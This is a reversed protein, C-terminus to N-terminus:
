YKEIVRLVKKYFNRIITNIREKGYGYIERIEKVRKGQLVRAIVIEEEEKSIKLKERVDRKLLFYQKAVNSLIDLNPDIILQKNIFAKLREFDVKDIVINEKIEQGLSELMLRVISEELDRYLYPLLELFKVKFKMRIFDVIKKCRESLPKLVIVSYEGTTPNKTPSIHIPIFGNKLWFKLLDYTVGFGSGIWDYKKEKLIKSLENLAISGLGKGQLIPHTAIRVIRGGKLLPFEKERYHKCIVDPIINGKPSEGELMREVYNRSLNGENALQIAVVVKKNSSLFLAYGEHHPADALLLLDNPKNRYHALVYIGVFERLTKEKNENLFVEKLNLKEVYARKRAIDIFDVTNLEPPEADLLLVDYIFKEIPDNNSYRIPEKMEIKILKDKYKEELIKMFRVSFTRGAGEYGHITSSFVIKDLKELYKKLVTIYIGAAEDVVLFDLRKRKLVEVPKFYTLYTREYKYKGRKIKKVKLELEKYGKSFFELLVKVNRFERATIGIDFPKGKLEKLIGAL